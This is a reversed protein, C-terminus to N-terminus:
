KRPDKKMVCGCADRRLEIKTGNIDNVTASVNNLKPMRYNSIDIFLEKNNSSKTENVIANMTNNKDVYINELVMKSKVDDSSVSIQMNGDITTTGADLTYTKNNESHRDQNGTYIWKTTNYIKYDVEKNDSMKQEKSHSHDHDSHDGIDKSDLQEDATPPNMGLGFSIGFIFVTILIIKKM